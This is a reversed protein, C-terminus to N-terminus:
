DICKVAQAQLIKSSSAFRISVIKLAFGTSGKGGGRAEVGEEYEAIMALARYVEELRKKEFARGAEGAAAEDGAADLDAEASYNLLSGINSRRMEAMKPLCEQATEGPVFQAFFTHRVLFETVAKLGPIPSHTFTHLLSPAADIIFPFSCAAYVLYSRVLAPTSTARLSSATSTSRPSTELETADQTATGIPLLQSIGTAGVLILGWRAYSRNGLGPTTTSSVFRASARAVRPSAM